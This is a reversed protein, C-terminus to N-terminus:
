CCYIDVNDFLLVWLAFVEDDSGTKRDYRMDWVMNVM